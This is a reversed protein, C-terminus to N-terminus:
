RFLDVERIEQGDIRIEGETADYFRDLLKLITSKGAGTAGVFAVTTGPSVSFSVDKLIQKKNDYSFSVHDFDVAGGTFKFDDANERNVVSPKTKMIDLLQEADIMNRSINRGLGAFFHLPSVLQAWYTLLMVFQGPTAQGTTVQWVALFAGALLGALLVLYQFAYAVLYAIQLKQSKAIRDKVTKSYRDEEYEIQNFSAVTSWGQIGTQRVYYEEFWASIESRRSARLGAIMRGAIYLFIISTASTILAEYPGFTVSLYVIAVTMDIMSPIAQFCISELMTSINQGARMATIIDASSKSDHFDSSLNLVHSYAANSIAEYSYFEVPLWLWQRVLSLGAESACFRLAAFILVQIWPNSDNVGSLSDTLIGLQRPILVNLANALLLCVGVLVARLQLVVNNVPWVYPV